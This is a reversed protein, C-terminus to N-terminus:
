VDVNSGEALFEAMGGSPEGTFESHGCLDFSKELLRAVQCTSAFHFDGVGGNGM